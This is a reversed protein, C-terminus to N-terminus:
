AIYMGLNGDCLFTMAEIIDNGDLVSVSCNFNAPSVRLTTATDSFLIEAGSRVAFGDSDSVDVRTRLQDVGACNARQNIGIMIDSM